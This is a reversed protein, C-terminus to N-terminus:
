SLLRCLPRRAARDASRGPGPQPRDGLLRDVRGPQFVRHRRLLELRRTGRAQHGAADAVARVSVDYAARTASGAFLRSLLRIERRVEWDGPSEQHDGAVPRDQQIKTPMLAMRGRTFMSMGMPGMKLMALPKNLLYYGAPWASSSAAATSRWSTPSRRPWPRPTPTRTALGRRDGDAEPRVHHRHHPDEAPLPHHLLLVLRLVVDHQGGAGGRAREANIMAFITRPTYEMDAGSPCSGGCSGCQLCHVIREGGPTDEIVERLFSSGAHVTEHAAMSKSRLQKAKKSRDDVATDPPFPGVRGGFRSFLQSAALSSAPRRRKAGLRYRSARVGVRCFAATRPQGLPWSIRRGRSQSPLNSGSTPRCAM